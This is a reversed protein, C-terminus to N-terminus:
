VEVAAIAVEGDAAPRNGLYTASYEGDALGTNGTEKENTGPWLIVGFVMFMGFVVIMVIAGIEEKRAHKKRSVKEWMEETEHEHKRKEARDREHKAKKQGKDM